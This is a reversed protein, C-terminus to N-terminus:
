RVGKVERKSSSSIDLTAAKVWAVQAKDGDEEAAGLIAARWFNVAIWGTVFTIPSWTRQVPLYFPFCEGGFVLNLDQVESEKAVKEVHAVLEICDGLDTSSWEDWRKSESM